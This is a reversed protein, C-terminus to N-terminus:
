DRLITDYRVLCQTLWGIPVNLSCLLLGNYLLVTVPVSATSPDASVNQVALIPRPPSRGRWDGGRQVLHLLACM